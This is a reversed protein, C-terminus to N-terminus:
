PAPPGHRERGVLIDFVVGHLTAPARGRASVYMQCTPCILAVLGDDASRRAAQEAVDSLPTGNMNASNAAWLELSRNRLTFSTWPLAMLGRRGIALGGISQIGGESAYGHLQHFGGVSAAKM